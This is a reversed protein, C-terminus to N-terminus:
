AAAADMAKALGIDLETVGGSDHTTLRVEVRNYVNLWEPHHDMKEAVLACETMFAFAGTFGRFKFSKTIAKGGDEIAWAELSAVAENLEDPTLCPKAM